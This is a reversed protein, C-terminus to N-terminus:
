SKSGVIIVFEGKIKEDHMEFYRLLKKATGSIIEEYIKTLEKAVIVRRSNDLYEKLSTLTKILRHPSEYFVITRKSEVIEKFLKERGKKHPLFGLFLFESAPL